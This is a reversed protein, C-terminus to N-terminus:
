KVGRLAWRAVASLTQTTYSVIPADQAELEAKYTAIAATDQAECRNEYQILDIDVSDRM